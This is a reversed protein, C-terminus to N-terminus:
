NDGDGELILELNSLQEEIASRDELLKEIQNDLITYRQQLKKTEAILAKRSALYVNAIDKKATAM